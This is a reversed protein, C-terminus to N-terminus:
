RLFLWYYMNIRIIKIISSILKIILFLKKFISLPYIRKLKKEM